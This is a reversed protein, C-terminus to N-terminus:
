QMEDGVQGRAVTAMRLGWFSQEHQFGYSSYIRESEGCLYTSLHDVSNYVCMFIDSNLVFKWNVNSLHSNLIKAIHSASSSVFMYSSLVTYCM